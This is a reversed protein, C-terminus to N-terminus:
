ARDSALHISWNAIPFFQFSGTIGSIPHGIYLLVIQNFPIFGSRAKRRPPLASAERVPMAFDTEV